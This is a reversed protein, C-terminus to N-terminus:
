YTYYKFGDIDTISHTIIKGGAPDLTTITNDSTNISQLVVFHGRGLHVIGIRNNAENVKNLIKIKDENSTNIPIDFMEVMKFGPVFNRYALNDWYIDVGSFGGNAKLAENLVDPSFNTADSLKGTCTLAIAMSTLACGSKSITQTSYGLLHSGWRTDSQSYIVCNEKNMTDNTCSDEEIGFVDYRKNVMNRGQYRSYADKDEQRTVVCMSTDGGANCHNYRASSCADEVYEDLGDPYIYSAYKCGGDGWSGPNYWYDGLYAYRGAFSEYSEYKKLVQIFGMIGEEFSNYKTCKEPQGNYCTIGFYNYTNGGPSFGELLARVIIMEPNVGNSIAMDFIIGANSQFLPWSAASSGQYNEISEIFEERSLTTNQLSFTSCNTNPSTDNTDEKKEKDITRYQFESGLFYKLHEGYIRGFQMLLYYSGYMSYGTEDDQHLYERDYAIVNGEEDWDREWYTWCKDGDNEVDTEIETYKNCECDRYIDNNLYNDAFSKPIVMNNAQYLNYNDDNMSSWCFDSVKTPIFNENYDVITIGKANEIARDFIEDEPISTTLTKDRYTVECNNTIVENRLAISLSYYVHYFGTPPSNLDKTYAYVAARVYDEIEMTLSSDAKNGYPDYNITVEKCNSEKYIFKTGESAHLMSMLMILVILGIAIAAVILIHKKKLLLAIAKKSGSVVADKHKTDLTMEGKNEEPIPPNEALDEIKQQDSAEVERDEFEKDDM